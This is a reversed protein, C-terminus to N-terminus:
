LCTERYYNVTRLLGDRFDVKPSWGFTERAKTNDVAYEMIEGPRYERAGLKILDKNGLIGSVIAAVEAVTVPKGSGVNFISGQHPEALAAQILADLLDTVYIYDRTQEGRTMPFPNNKILATILSPLFMSTDQGPGYALTPRIVTVPIHHLRSLTACLQTVCLKSFSYSSVPMERMDERFPCKNHGYEEATGVVICARLGDVVSLSTLLNLTGLLNVEIAHYFEAIESSRDKTAALHFVFEPRCVGVAEEVFAKDRLDGIMEHVASGTKSSARDIVSIEAGAAVLQGTLHGGVFGSGGTVLVKKDRFTLLRIDNMM